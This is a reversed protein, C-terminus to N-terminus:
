LSASDTRSGVAMEDIAEVRYDLSIVIIGDPERRVASPASVFRCVGCHPCPLYIPLPTSDAPHRGVLAFM